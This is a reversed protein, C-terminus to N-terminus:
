PNNEAPTLAPTVTQLKKMAILYQQIRALSGVNTPM